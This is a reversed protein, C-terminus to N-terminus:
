WKSYSKGINDYECFHGLKLQTYRQFYYVQM